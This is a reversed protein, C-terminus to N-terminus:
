LQQYMVPQMEGQEVAVLTLKAWRDLNRLFGSFHAKDDLDEAAFWSDGEKQNDSVFKVPRAFKPNTTTDVKEVEEVKEIEKVEEAQKVQEVEEVEEEEAESQVSPPEPASQDVPEAVVDHHCDTCEPDPFGGVPIPDQDYCQDDHNNWICNEPSFNYKTHQPFLKSLLM